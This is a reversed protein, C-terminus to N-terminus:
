GNDTFHEYWAKEILAAKEEALSHLQRLARADFGRSDALQVMPNLWFKADGEAGKVHIHLPERPDGENSYFFFRLGNWTFVTPM